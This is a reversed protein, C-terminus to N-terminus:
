RIKDKHKKYLKITYENYPMVYDWIKFKFKGNILFVKSGKKVKFLANVKKVNTIKNSIKACKNCYGGMFLGGKVSKEAKIKRYPRGCYECLVKVQNKMTIRNDLM